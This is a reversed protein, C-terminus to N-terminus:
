MDKTAMTATTQATTTLGMVMVMPKTQRMMAM